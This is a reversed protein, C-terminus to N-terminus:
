KHYAVIFLRTCKISWIESPINELYIGPFLWAKYFAQQIQPMKFYEWIRKRLRVQSWLQMPIYSFSTNRDWFGWCLTKLDQTNAMQYTLSPTGHLWWQCTSMHIFNFVKEYKFHKYTKEQLNDTWM